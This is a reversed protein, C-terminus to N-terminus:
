GREAKRKQRWRTKSVNDVPMVTATLKREQRPQQAVLADMLMGWVKEHVCTPERGRSGETKACGTLKATARKSEGSARVPVEDLAPEDPKPRWPLGCLAMIM